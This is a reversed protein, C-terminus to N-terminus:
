GVSFIPPQLDQMKRRQNKGAQTRVNHVAAEGKRGFITRGMWDNAPDDRTLTFM